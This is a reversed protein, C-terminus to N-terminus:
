NGFMRDSCYCDRRSLASLTALIVYNYTFRAVVFNEDDNNKENKLLCCLCEDENHVDHELPLQVDHFSSLLVQTRIYAEEVTKMFPNQFYKMRQPMSVPPMTYNKFQSHWHPVTQGAMKGWNTYYEQSYADAHLKVSLSHVADSQAILEQPSFDSPYEKHSIPM